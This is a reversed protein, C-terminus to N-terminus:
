RDFVPRVILDADLPMSFACGLKDTLFVQSFNLRLQVIIPPKALQHVLPDGQRPLDGAQSDVFEPLSCTSFFGLWFGSNSLFDRIRTWFGFATSRPLGAVVIM